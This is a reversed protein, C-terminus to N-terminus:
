QARVTLHYVVGLSANCEFLDTIHYVPPEQHKSVKTAKFSEIYKFAEYFDNEAHLEGAEEM